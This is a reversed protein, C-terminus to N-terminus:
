IYISSVQRFSHINSILQQSFYESVILNIRDTSSVSQIYKECEDFKDFTRLYNISSRFKEQAVLNEESYISADLWILSYIEYNIDNKISSVPETCLSSQLASAM